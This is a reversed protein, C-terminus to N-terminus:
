RGQTNTAWIAVGTVTYIVLNGDDQLALFANQNGPTNSYWVAANQNYLVLNGDTQMVCKTVTQGFTNSSWIATGNNKYLVLNGDTQCILYYQGNPSPKRTGIPINTDCCFQTYNGPPQATNTAWVATGDTRYIVMNGDDQLILKANANGYTNSSWAPTNQVLNYIVFNGDAQMVCRPTLVRETSNAWMQVAPNGKKTLHLNGLGDFNLFYRQNSSIIGAAIALEGVFTNNKKRPFEQSTNTAWVVTGDSRRIALNGNNQVVLNANQNGASNSAWTPTTGNFMVLNGDAQMVCKTATIPTVTPNNSWITTGDKKLLVLKGDTMFTLTYDGNASQLRHKVILQRGCCLLSDQSFGTFTIM